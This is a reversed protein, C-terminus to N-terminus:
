FHTLLRRKFNEPSKTTEERDADNPIYIYCEYNPQVLIIIHAKDHAKAM